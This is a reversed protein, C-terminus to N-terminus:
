WASSAHHAVECLASGVTPGVSASFVAWTHDDRGGLVRPQSLRLGDGGEVQITVEEPLEQIEGSGFQLRSEAGATHLGRVGSADAQILWAETGPRRRRNHVRFALVRDGLLVRGRLTTSYRVGLPEVGYAHDHYGTGRFELRRGDPAGVVMGTVDCLGDAVVWAHRTAGAASADLALEAPGQSPRTRFTLEASPAGHAGGAAAAQLRLRLTGDDGRVFESPGVRTDPTRHSALYQDAPVHGSFAALVEGGRWAFWEVCAYESPLPPPHRTPRRRYREYRRAYEPHPLFGAGLRAVLTLDGDASVADFHWWEYGGPGLVRHSADAIPNPTYLPLTHM